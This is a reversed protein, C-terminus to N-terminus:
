EDVEGWMNLNSTYIIQMHRVIIPMQSVEFNHKDDYHVAAIVKNLILQQLKIEAIKHNNANRGRTICKDQLRGMQVKGCLKGTRRERM